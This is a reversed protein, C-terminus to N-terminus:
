DPLSRLMDQLDEDGIVGDISDGLEDLRSIVDAIAQEFPAEFDIAISSIPGAQAGAVYGRRM